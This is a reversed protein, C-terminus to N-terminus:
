AAKASRKLRQREEALIQDMLGDARDALRAEIAEILMLRPAHRLSRLGAADGNGLPAFLTALAEELSSALLENHSAEALAIHFTSEARRLEGLTTAKVMADLGIRMRKLDAPTRRTAAFRAAGREIAERFELARLFGGPDRAARRRAIRDLDAEDAVSSGGHAGRRVSVYGETELVRLAERLTVRSVSMDDALKREPPLREGPLMLGLHVQRRIREVVLGYAAQQEVPRLGWLM